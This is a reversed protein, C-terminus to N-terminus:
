TKGVGKAFCNVKPSYTKKGKKTSGTKIPSTNGTKKKSTEKAELKVASGNGESINITKM